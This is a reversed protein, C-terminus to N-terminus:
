VFVVVFFERCTADIDGVIWFIGVDDKEGSDIVVFIPGEIDLGQEREEEFIIGEHKTGVGIDM